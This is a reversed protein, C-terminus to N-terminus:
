EGSVKPAPEFYGQGAKYLSLRNKIDEATEEQGLGEALALAKEATSQAQTFRGAAAYAVALTDLLEPNEYNTLECARLAYDIAKGPNHSEIEKHAALFWALNNITQVKYPDLEVVQTYHEIAEDLKGQVILVSALNNHADIYNPDLQLVHRYQGLAKELM